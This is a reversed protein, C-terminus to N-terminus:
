ADTSEANTSVTFSEVRNRSYGYPYNGTEDCHAKIAAKDPETKVRLDIGNKESFAILSDNDPWTVKWNTRKRLTGTPLKVTKKDLGDMYIALKDKIFDMGKEKAIIREDYFDNFKEKEAVLDRIEEEAKRILHLATSVDTIDNIEM